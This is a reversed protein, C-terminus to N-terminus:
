GTAGTKIKTATVQEQARILGGVMHDGYGLRSAQEFATLVAAGLPSPLGLRENM